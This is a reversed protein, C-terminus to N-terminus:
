SELRCPNPLQRKCDAFLKQNSAEVYLNLQFVELSGPLDITQIVFVFMSEIHSM